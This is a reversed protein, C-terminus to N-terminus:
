PWLLKWNQKWDLVTKLRGTFSHREDGDIQEIVQVMTENDMAATIMECLNPFIPHRWFSGPPLVPMLRFPWDRQDMQALTPSLTVVLIAAAISLKM